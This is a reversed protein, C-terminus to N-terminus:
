PQLEKIERELRSMVEKLNYPHEIGELECFHRLCNLAVNELPNRGTEVYILCNVYQENHELSVALIRESAQRLTLRGRGLQDLLEDMEELFVRRGAVRREIEAPSAPPGVLVGYAVDPEVLEPPSVAWVGGFLLLLLMFFLGTVKAM